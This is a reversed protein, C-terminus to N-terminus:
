GPSIALPVASERREGPAVTPRADLAATTELEEYIHGNSCFHDMRRSSSMETIKCLRNNIVVHGNKRLASAQM